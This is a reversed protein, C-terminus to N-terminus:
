LRDGAIENQITHTHAQEHHITHTHTHAHTHTHTHPWRRRWGRGRRRRQRRKDSTTMTTTAMTMTLNTTASCVYLCNHTSLTMAAPRDTDCDRFFPLSFDLSLRSETLSLSLLCLVRLLADNKPYRETNQTTDTQQQQQQQKRDTPRDTQRNEHARNHRRKTGKPTTAIYTWPDWARSSAHTEKRVSLANLAYDGDVLLATSVCVSM